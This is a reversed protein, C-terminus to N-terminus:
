AWDTGDSGGYASIDLDLPEFTYLRALQGHDTPIALVQDRENESLLQHKRKMM